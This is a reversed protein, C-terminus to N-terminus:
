AAIVTFLYFGVFTAASAGALRWFQKHGWLVLPQGQPTHIWVLNLYAAAIGLILFTPVVYPRSLSMMSTCWGALLAGIFPRMRALEAHWVPQTLRGMRYLQVAAFYWCGFFLSGGIIGLEVYTHVFSNHAVLGAYDAYMNHGVGFFLNPSKLAAYGERWMEIREHGTSGESLSINGARGALVPLSAIALVGLVAAFKPGFRFCAMTLIVACGALMGGRSKTEWISAAFVFFVCLWLWRWIGLKHDTLFYSALVSGAVIVMALDNPDQFIGTGRMRHVIIPNGDDDHGDVDQLHVIFELDVVGWYDFLCLAVMVSTCLAVNWLFARLRRPSNVVTIVLAYYLLTKLFNPVSDVLGGLYFHQLHSIAVAPLLGAACLTIPQRILATWHFHPEVSTAALGLSSLILVEYLPLEGVWSFLEAPRLFLTATVLQFLGFALITLSRHHM